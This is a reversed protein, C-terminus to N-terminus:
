GSFIGSGGLRILPLELIACRDASGTIALSTL